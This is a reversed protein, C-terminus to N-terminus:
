LESSFAVSAASNIYVVSGPRNATLGSLGDRYLLANTVTPAYISISNFPTTPVYLAQYYNTGTTSVLTPAIRMEVPYQVVGEWQTTSITYIAPVVYNNVTGKISWYYRQCAALETQITPTTRSFETAVGGEELQLGTIEMYDNAGATGTVDAFMELGIQTINSSATGTFSYRVWNDTLVISQNVIATFNTFSHVVQDTGTGTAVFVRFANGSVSYNAGKRAWFSLTVKKGAFRLSDATEVTYRLGLTQTSTNGSNRQIRMCYQFGTLGASQRTLTAGSDNNGRYWHWRDASYVVSQGLGVGSPFSTGRQWIDCAGNILANKGSVFYGASNSIASTSYTEGTVDIGISDAVEGQITGGSRTFETATSGIELQVGTFEIFDNANSATGAANQYFWVALETATSPVTGSVSYRVWSTTPTITLASTTGNGTYGVNLNQDTGTGHNLAMLVTSGSYSSGVRVYASLTVTKGAFPIANASEINHVTQIGGTVTDGNNRAIRMCYQIFPLNTTDNTTQRTITYGGAAAARGTGWRDAITNYAGGTPSLTIGKTWFDFAGNLIINKGAANRSGYSKWALGSATASDAVLVQDNSGVALRAPTSSATATLVDGKANLTNINITNAVNFASFALVVVVDGATMASIGTISSGTTAVYDDGRVQLVGNIYVQEKGVLYSLTLGNGDVGSVSTAGGSVTYRYAIIDASSSIETWASGSWVFMKNTSTNWYLAGTILANGDNDLSPPTAKAGLYRDDFDDYSTAAAAASTAASSASTAASSASTAASTQSTLASSASTAASSASTAASSASTAAQSASTTATAASNSATTASAAASTASTAAATASAAASTASTAAQGASTAATAASNSATTASAAASTASTAAATASAAASTASTAAATASAAASTASTAAATQSTLASAASTAAATQSTLASAASTAAATASTSASAASTAAATASTAASSASVAASGQSTLASSASTAASSASVAASSASAAASATQTDIYAKTAADSSSTPTALGTIKFGGAALDSGLTATTLTKGTLTQAGGTGVIDGTVGHANTAAEHTRFDSFDLASVGHEVVAGVSHAKSSTGDVGRTVTYATGVLATVTVIEENATDKELILTFPYQSPLGSAAALSLSTSATSADIAQSLTTKAATSSYYRAITPM